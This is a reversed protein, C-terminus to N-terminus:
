LAKINSNALTAQRANAMQTLADTGSPDGSVPRDDGASVPGAALAVDDLSADDDLVQLERMWPWHTQERPSESVGSM